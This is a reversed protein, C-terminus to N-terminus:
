VVHIVVVSSSRLENLLNISMLLPLKIVMSLQISAILMVNDSRIRISIPISHVSRSVLLRYVISLHGSAMRRPRCASVRNPSAGSYIRTALDSLLLDVEILILLVFNVSLLVVLGRLLVVLSATSVLGRLLCGSRLV